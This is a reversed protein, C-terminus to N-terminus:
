SSFSLSQALHNKAMRQGDDRTSTQPIHFELAVGAKDPIGADELVTDM